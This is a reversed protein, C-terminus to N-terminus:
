KKNRRWSGFVKSKKNGSSKSKEAALERELQEIRKNARTLEDRLKNNEEQYSELTMTSPNILDDKLFAMHISKNKIRRIKGREQQSLEPNTLEKVLDGAEIDILSTRKDYQQNPSNLSQGNNDSEVKLILQSGNNVNYDLLTRINDLIVDNNFYLKQQYDAIETRFEIKRKISSISNGTKCILDLVEGDPLKVKLTIKKSRIKYSIIPPMQTVHDFVPAWIKFIIGPASLYNRFAPTVKINPVEYSDEYQHITSKMMSSTKEDDEDDDLRNLNFDDRKNSINIIDKGVGCFSFRIYPLEINKTEIKEFGIILAVPKNEMKKMDYCNTENEQLLKFTIEVHMEGIKDGSVSQIPITFIQKPMNRGSLRLNATGFLTETEEPIFPDDDLTEAAVNEGDAEALEHYYTLSKLLSEFEHSQMQHQLEPDSYHCTRTVIIRDLKTNQQIDFYSITGVDFLVDKNLSLSMQNANSCKSTIVQYDEM